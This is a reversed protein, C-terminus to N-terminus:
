ANYMARARSIQGSHVAIVRSGKKSVGVLCIQAGENRMTTMLGAERELLELAAATAAAAPSSTLGGQRVGVGGGPAAKSLALLLSAPPRQPLEVSLAPRFRSNSVGAAGGAAGPLGLPPTSALEGATSPAAAGAPSGLVLGVPLTHGDGATRGGAVCAGVDAATASISRGVDGVGLKRRKTATAAAALADLQQNLAVYAADSRPSVPYNTADLFGPPRLAPLSLMVSNDLPHVLQLWGAARGALEWASIGAGHGDLALTTSGPATGYAAVEDDTNAAAGGGAGGTTGSGTMPATALGQPNHQSGEERLVRCHFSCLGCIGVPAAGDSLLLLLCTRLCASASFSVGPPCLYAWQYDLHHLPCLSFGCSV